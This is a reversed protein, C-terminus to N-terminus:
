QLWVEQKRIKIAAGNFGAAHDFVEFYTNSWDHRDTRTGKRTCEPSPCGEELGHPLDHLPCMTVVKCEGVRRRVTATAGPRKCSHVVSVQRHLQTPQVPLWEALGQRGREDASAREVLTTHRDAHQVAERRTNMVACWWEPWIWVRVEGRAWVVLMRRITYWAPQGDYTCAVDDGARVVLQRGDEAGMLASCARFCAGDCDPLVDGNMAVVPEVDDRLSADHLQRRLSVDMATLLQEKEMVGPVWGGSDAISLDHQRPTLSTLAALTPHPLHRRGTRFDRAGLLKSSMELRTGGSTHWVMGGLLLRACVRRTYWLLAKGQGSDGGRGGRRGAMTAKAVQHHSELPRCDSFLANRLAPLTHLLLELLNHTNPKGHPQDASLLGGQGWGRRLIGRGVAVLEDCDTATLASFMRAALRTIDVLLRLHARTCLGDYCSQSAYALMRWGDMTVGSGFVGTSKSGSAVVEKAILLPPSVGQPWPFQQLRVTLESRQQASMLQVIGKCIDPYLGFWILHSGDIWSQVHPDCSVGRWLSQVPRTGYAKNLDKAPTKKLRFNVQEARM